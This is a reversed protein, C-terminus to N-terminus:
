TKIVEDNTNLFQYENLALSSDSVVKVWKILSLFWKLRRSVIGETFYAKLYPHVVLSVKKENQKKFLHMLTEEIQDAV